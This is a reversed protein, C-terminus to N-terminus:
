GEKDDENKSVVRYEAEFTDDKKSSQNKASNAKDLSESAAKLKRYQIFSRWFLSLVLFLAYLFLFKLVFGM